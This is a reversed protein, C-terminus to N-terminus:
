NSIFALAKPSYKRFMALLKYVIIDPTRHFAGSRTKVFECRAFWLAANLFIIAVTEFKHHYRAVLFHDQYSLSEFFSSQIQNDIRTCARKVSICANTFHHVSDQDPEGCLACNHDGQIFHRKRRKTFLANWTFHLQIIRLHDPFASPLLALNYGLTGAKRPMFVNQLKRSMERLHARVAREDVLFMLFNDRQSSFDAMSPVCAAAAEVANHIHDRMFLSSRPNGGDHNAPVRSHQTCLAALNATRVSVLPFRLGGCCRHAELLKRKYACRFPLIFKDLLKNVSSLTRKPMQFFRSTYSFLSTLFVNAIIIRKSISFSSRVALYKNVRGTFAELDAKFVDDLTIRAGFLIGLYMASDEFKVEPWISADKRRLTREDYPLTSIILTKQQNAAADTADCYLQIQRAIIDFSDFDTFMFGIDDAFAKPDIDAQGDFACLITDILLNFLLPSLPDGQKVGRHVRICLSDAGFITTFVCLESLLMCITNCFWTPMSIHNLLRLLFEHNVNDYAKKLDLFLLYNQQQRSLSSYFRQNFHYINDGIARGPLFAKQNPHLFDQLTPTIIIKLTSSIIRNDSNPISLPRTDKPKGTLKKPLLTLLGHNFGPPPKVKLMLQQLVDLLIPAIIDKCVRFAAFPIGDPGPASNNTHKIASIIHDLCPTPPQLRIKRQYRSLYNTITQSSAEAPRWINAWFDSAIKSMEDPDSTSRQDSPDVLFTLRPRDSPLSISIKKLLNSTQPKTHTSSIETSKDELYADIYDSLQSTDYTGDMINYAVLDKLKTNADTIRIIRSSSYANHPNNCVRLLSVATSFHQLKTEVKLRSAAVLKKATHKINQKWLALDHFPRGTPRQKEWREKFNKLFLPHKTIWPPVRYPGRKPPLSPTFTLSIPAHDSSLKSIAPPHPIDPIKITPTYLTHISEPLSHYVRDLRSSYDHKFFTHLDSKAERLRFKGVLSNFQERYARSALSYNPNTSDDKRVICNWDGAYFSHHPYDLAMAAQILSTRVQNKNRGAPLYVNHIRFSIPNSFNDKSTLSIYHMYGQELISHSFDFEALISKRILIVTGATSSNLNNYFVKWKPFANLIHDEGL